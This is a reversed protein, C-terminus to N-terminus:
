AYHCWYLEVMGTWPAVVLSVMSVLTGGVAPKVLHDRTYEEGSLYFPSATHFVCACGKVAEDFSGEQLLNAKFLLLKGKSTAAAEEGLKRLTQTKSENSPDRVTAHVTYGKELLQKVLQLGLFGSAGTVCVTQAM